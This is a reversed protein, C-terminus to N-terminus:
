VISSKVLTFPPEIFNGPKLCQTLTRANRTNRMTKADVADAVGIPNIRKSEPAPPTVTPILKTSQVGGTPPGLPEKTTLPPEVSVLARPAGGIPLEPDKRSRDPANGTLLKMVNAATGPNANSRPITPGPEAFVSHAPNGMPPDHEIKAPDGMM